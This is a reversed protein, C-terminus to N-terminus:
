EKDQLWAVVHSAFALESFPEGFLTSLEDTLEVADRESIQDAAPKKALRQVFQKKCAYLASLAQQRVMLQDMENQIGFLAAIFTEVHPALAILLESEEKKALSSPDARVAMLRDHLGADVTQLHGTFQADLRALGQRHYLDMLGLGHNLALKQM